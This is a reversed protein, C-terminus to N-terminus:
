FLQGEQNYYDILQRKKDVITGIGSEIEQYKDLTTTLSDFKISVFPAMPASAGISEMTSSKRKVINGLQDVLYVGTNDTTTRWTGNEALDDYYKKTWADETAKDPM